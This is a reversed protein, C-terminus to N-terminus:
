VLARLLVSRLERVNGPWPHELLVALADPALAPCPEGPPLLQSLLHRALVPIDEPRERLPPLRLPVVRLRVRLHERFTGARVRETLERHTAAVVRVDVRVPRTAGLPLVEGSELLRLLQGQVELPLEGVGDLFLTGGHAAQVCGPVDREAG